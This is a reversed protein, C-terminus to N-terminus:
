PISIKKKVTMALGPPGLATRVLLKTRTPECVIERDETPLVLNKSSLTILM